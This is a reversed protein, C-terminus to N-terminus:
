KDSKRPENPTLLVKELRGRLGGPENEENTLVVILSQHKPYRAMEARYGATSGGHFIVPSGDTATGVKWGYAYGAKEPQFFKVQSVGGLVSKARLSADWRFLDHVNTVTGTAGRFGWSWAYWSVRDTLPPQGGEGRRLVRQTELARDVSTEQLMWTRNMKAADFVHQHLYSEFSQGSAREVIAALLFYNPNAYRFREGPKAVLPTKLVAATMDDRRNLFVGAFNVEPSVGSTHTLLQHITIKAQDDPVDALHLSISDIVKLKGQEELKLIAAATFQKSLSGIDFLMDATLPTKQLDAFGYGKALLIRGNHAVLVAGWFPKPQEAAVVSDLQRGIEGAVVTGGSQPEESCGSIGLVAAMLGPVLVTLQLKGSM